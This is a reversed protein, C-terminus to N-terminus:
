KEGTLPRIKINRFWVPDGHDQLCIHGKPERGFDPLDKFKSAAIRKRWDESGIEYEVLKERKGNMVIKTRNWEGVLKTVDRSVAYLAYCSAASTLPNKGDFLLKWGAAKEEPTLTNDPANQGAACLVMWLVMSTM